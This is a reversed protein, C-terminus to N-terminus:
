RRPYIHYGSKSYIIMFRNTETAVGNQDIYVGITREATIREKKLWEGKYEIM